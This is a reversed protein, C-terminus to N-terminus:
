HWHHPAAYYWGVMLILTLSPYVGLIRAIGDARAKLALWGGILCLMPVFWLMLYPYELWSPNISVGQRMAWRVPENLVSAVGSWYFAMASMLVGNVVMMATAFRTRPKRGDEYYTLGM